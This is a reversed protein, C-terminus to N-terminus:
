KYYAEAVALRTAAAHQCALISDTFEPLISHVDQKILDDLGPQQQAAKTLLQQLRAQLELCTCSSGRCQSQYAFGILLGPIKDWEHAIGGLNAKLIEERMAATSALGEVTALVDSAGGVTTGAAVASLIGPWLLLSPPPTIMIAIHSIKIVVIAVVHTSV